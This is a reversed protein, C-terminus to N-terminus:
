KGSSLSELVAWGSCSGFPLMPTATQVRSLPRLLSPVSSDVPRAQFSTEHAIEESRLEHEGWTNFMAFFMMLKPAPVVESVMSVSYAGWCGTM